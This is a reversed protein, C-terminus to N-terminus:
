PYPPTGFIEDLTINIMILGILFLALFIIPILRIFVRPPNTDELPKVCAALGVGILILSAGILTRIIPNFGTAWPIIGVWLLIYWVLLLVLLLPTKIIRSFKSRYDNRASQKLPQM